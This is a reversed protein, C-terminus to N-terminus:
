IGCVNTDPGGADYEIGYESADFEGTNVVGDEGGDIIFDNECAPAAEVHCIEDMPGGADYVEDVIEDGALENLYDNYVGGGDFLIECAQFIPPLIPQLVKVYKPCISSLFFTEIAGTTSGTATRSEKLKSPNLRSAGQIARRRNLETAMSADGTKSQIPKTRGVQEGWPTKMNKPVTAPDVKWYQYAGYLLISGLFMLAITNLDM